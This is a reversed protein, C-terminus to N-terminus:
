QVSEVCGSAQTQLVYAKQGSSGDPGHATAVYVRIEGGSTRPWDGLHDISLTVGTQAHADRLSETQQVLVDHPLQRQVAPCLQNWGLDGDESAVSHMFLDAPTPSHSIAFATDRSFGVVAIAAVLIANVLILRHRTM